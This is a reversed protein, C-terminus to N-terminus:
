LQETDNTSIESKNKAIYIDFEDGIPLGELKYEGAKIEVIAGM